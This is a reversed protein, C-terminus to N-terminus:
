LPKLEDLQISKDAWETHAFNEFLPKLLRDNDDTVITGVAEAVKAYVAVPYKGLFDLNTSFPSDEKMVDQKLQEISFSSFKLDTDYDCLGFAQDTNQPDIQTILFSYGLRKVEVHAVPVHNKGRNEPLGNKILEDIQQNTFLKAKGTM